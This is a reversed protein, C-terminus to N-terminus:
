IPSVPIIYIIKARASIILQDEPLLNHPDSASPLAETSLNPILLTSAMTIRRSCLGRLLRDSSVKLRIQAVYKIFIANEGSRCRITQYVNLEKESSGAAEVKL